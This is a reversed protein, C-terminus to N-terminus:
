ASMSRKPGDVAAYSHCLEGGAETLELLYHRDFYGRDALLLCGRPEPSKAARGARERQRGHPDSQFLSEDLLDSLRMCNSRRPKVKKFRGPFVEKLADKIAFSSGVQIVIRRVGVDLNGQVYPPAPPPRPLSPVFGLRIRVPTRGIAPGAVYQTATYREGYGGMM